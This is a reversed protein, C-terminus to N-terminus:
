PRCAPPSPRIGSSTAAPRLRAVAPALRASAQPLRALEADIWALVAAAGDADCLSLHFVLQRWARAARKPTASRRRAATFAGRALGDWGSPPEIGVEGVLTAMNFTTLVHAQEEVAAEHALPGRRGDDQGGPLDRPLGAREVCLDMFAVADQAAARERLAAYDLGYYREYLTGQLLDAASRVAPYVDRDVAGSHTDTLPVSLFRVPLEAQRALGSLTDALRGPIGAGPFSEVALEGVARLTLLAQAAPGPGHAALARSWPAEAGAQGAHRDRTWPHGAYPRAPACPQAAALLTRVAEDPYGRATHPAALQPALEALVEASPVAARATLATVATPRIGALPARVASPLATGAPLGTRAAEGATVPGDLPGAGPAARDADPACLRHRALAALEHYAPLAAQAAQKRRLETHEPSGPRGRKAVMSTVAHRLLGAQRPEPARGAVAEELARRLIAANSKPDLHRTCRTHRAALDRYRELLAAGDARWQAGHEGAEARLRHALLEDEFPRWVALAERQAEVAPHPKRLGLVISAEASTRRRVADAPPRPHDAPRPTLPLRDAFPRLQAVLEEAAEDDGARVLWAVALLAAEEPVTVEYRGSDLLSWLTRLGAEGLFHAFLDLRTAPVGALQAAEREHPRLPGGDAFGARGAEPSLWPPAFSRAAGSPRRLWHSMLARVRSSAHAPATASPQPDTNEDM